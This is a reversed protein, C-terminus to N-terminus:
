KTLFKFMLSTLRSTGIRFYQKNINQYPLLKEAMKFFIIADDLTSLGGAAKFGIKHKTKKYFDNIANLIVFASETTAGVAIKGTSTKVFDAGAQMVAMSTNYVIEPKNLEGSEIIVKLTNDKCIQKAQFVEEYVKDYNNQFVFGRNIVYDVEDAGSDLAKKVEDLKLDTTLQGIPFNGAVTALGIGLDGLIEKALPMFPIFLCVSAVGVDASRSMRLTEECFKKINTDTDFGNLSTNDICSYIASILDKDDRISPLSSQIDLLLNDYLTKDFYEM